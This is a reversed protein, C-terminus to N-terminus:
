LVVNQLLAAFVHLMKIVAEIFKVTAYFYIWLFYIWLHFSPPYGQGPEIAISVM